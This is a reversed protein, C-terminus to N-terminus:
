VEGSAERTSQSFWSDNSLLLTSIRAGVAYFKYVKIIVGLLIDKPSGSVFPM